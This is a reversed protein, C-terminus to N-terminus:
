KSRFYPYWVAARVTPQETKLGIVGETNYLLPNTNSDEYNLTTLNIDEMSTIKTIKPYKIMVYSALTFM